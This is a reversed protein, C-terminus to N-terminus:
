SAELKIHLQEFDLLLGKKNTSVMWRVKAMGCFAM